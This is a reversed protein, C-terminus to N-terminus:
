SEKALAADRDYMTIHLAVETGHDDRKMIAEVKSEDVSRSGKSTGMKSIPCISTTSASCSDLLTGEEHIDVTKKLNPCSAPDYGEDLKHEKIGEPLALFPASKLRDPCITASGVLCRCLCRYQAIWHCM